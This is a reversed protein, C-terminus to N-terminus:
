KPTDRNQSMRGAERAQQLEPHAVREHAAGKLWGERPSDALDHCGCISCVVVTSYATSDLSITM